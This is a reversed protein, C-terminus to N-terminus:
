TNWNRYAYVRTGGSYTIQPTNFLYAEVIVRYEDRDIRWNARDHESRREMKKQDNLIPNEKIRFV